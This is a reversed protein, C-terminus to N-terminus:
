FPAHGGIDEAANQQHDRRDEPDHRDTEKDHLERRTPRHLPYDRLDLPRHRAVARMPPPVPPSKPPLWAPAPPPSAESFEL